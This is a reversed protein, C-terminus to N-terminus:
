KRVGRGPSPHSEQLTRWLPHSRADSAPSAQVSSFRSRLCARERIELV